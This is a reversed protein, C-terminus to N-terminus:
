ECVPIRDILIRQIRVCIGAPGRPHRFVEPPPHPVKFDPVLGVVELEAFVIAAVQEAVQISLTKLDIFDEKVMGQVAHVAGYLKDIKDSRKCVEEVIGILSANIVGTPGGSQGVVANAM